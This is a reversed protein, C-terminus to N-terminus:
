KKRKRWAAHLFRVALVIPFWGVIVGIVEAIGYLLGRVLEGPHSPRINSMRSISPQKLTSGLEDMKNAAREFAPGLPGTLDPADLAEIGLQTFRAALGATQVTGKRIARGVDVPIGLLGGEQRNEIDLYDNWFQDGYSSQISRGRDIASQGIASIIEDDPRNDPTGAKNHHWKWSRILSDTTEFSQGGMREPAPVPTTSNVRPLVRNHEKKVPSFILYLLVLFVLGLILKYYTSKEKAWPHKELFQNWARKRQARKLRGVVTRLYLAEAAAKDGKSKALCKILLGENLSSELEEKAEKYFDEETKPKDESM